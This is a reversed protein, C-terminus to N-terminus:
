NGRGPPQSALYIMAELARQRQRDNVLLYRHTGNESAEFHTVADNGVVIKGPPSLDFYGRDPRIAYLVSTLDWTPRDYPMPRYNRYAEAIPHAAVYAFDKEISSAPYPISLGVEFGSAVIPTPWEAFMKRASEPDSTINYEPIGTPYAGAMCSLLRVKRIVLEKGGLPSVSDGPTDLLKALNTSFGVQIIVVPADHERALVTRLVSVADPAASGDVLEHPYVYAGDPGRRESPVRIMASDVPTKGGKVVGIPVRARGYFTNVLNVFPAAWKNDKTITVALLRVEGRSELAHLMALALADDVDNGIDTDFIVPIPRANNFRAAALILFSACLFWRAYRSIKGGSVPQRSGASGRAM